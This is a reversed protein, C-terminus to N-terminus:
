KSVPYMDVLKQVIEDYNVIMYWTASEIAKSFAYIGGFLAINPLIYYVLTEM